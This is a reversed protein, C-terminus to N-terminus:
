KQPPLPQGNEDFWVSLKKKTGVGHGELRDHCQKCVYQLNCHNLAIDPNDINLATLMIKHHVIYGLNDRCLECLGGDVLVRSAIYAQRCAQWRKSKYFAKAFDKAM